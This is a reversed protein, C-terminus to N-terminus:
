GNQVGTGPPITNLNAATGTLFYQENWVQRGSADKITLQYNTNFGLQTQLQDNFVFSANLSGNADLTGSIITPVMMAQSYDLADASLSFQYTGNAVASGTAYMFKGSVNGPPTIQVVTLTFPQVANPTVGNAATFTLNYSGIATPTGSLTGTGNGNDAFTVGPPLTGAETISPTPTGTTNVNFSQLYGKKFTASNGSTITPAVQIVQPQVTLTFPQNATGQSNTASITLTFTGSATPTGSLTATGNGNDTFTVGSPLSGSKSISPTPSGTTNVTFLGLTNQTFTANNASTITPAALGYPIRVIFVDGRANTGVVGTNQGTTSGLTGISSSGSFDSTFAIFNGTQSPAVQCSQCIYETSKGSNFTHAARYIIGQQGSIAGTVDLGRLEGYWCSQFPNYVPPGNTIWLLTQDTTSIPAFASHMDGKYTQPPSQYSPLGPPGAQKPILPTHVTPNSYAISDYQGGGAGGTYLDTYGLGHHGSFATNTVTLGANAWVLSGVNGVASIMSYTPNPPQNADHILFQSFSCNVLTATGTPGWAGTVALTQTDMMRLGSGAKYLCWYFGTDQTGQSFAATIVSDGQSVTLSSVWQVNYGAPLITAFDVITATSQYTWVGGVLSYTLAQLVSSQNGIYYLVGNSVKSFCTQGSLAYNGSTGLQAGQMTTPNFQFLYNVGGTSRSSLLTDDTNWMSYGSPDQVTQMSRYNGGGSSGDTLRVVQTGFTPDTYTTNKGYLNGVNPYTGPLQALQMDTRLSPVGM